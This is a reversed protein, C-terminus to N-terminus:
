QYTKVYFRVFLVLYCGLVSFASVVATPTAYCAGRWWLPMVAAYVGLLLVFQVIQLSTVLKKWRPPRGAACLAFYAYMLAHVAANVGLTLWQFPTEERLHVHALWLTAAHHFTHLFTLPRASHVILVTDLLEVVRGWFSIAYLWMLAPNAGGNVTCASHLLALLPPQGANHVYLAVLISVCLYASYFCLVQNYFVLALRPLRTPRNRGWHLAVYAVYGALVAYVLPESTAWRVLLPAADGADGADGGDDVVGTDTQM